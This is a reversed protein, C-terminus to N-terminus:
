VLRGHNPFFHLKSLTKTRASSPKEQSACASPFRSGEGGRNVVTGLAWPWPKTATFAGYRRSCARLPWRSWARTSGSPRTPPLTSGETRGWRWPREFRTKPPRPGSPCPSSRVRRRRRRPSAASSLALRSAQATTIVPTGSGHTRQM